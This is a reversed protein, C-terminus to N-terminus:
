RKVSNIQQKAWQSDEKLSDITEEPKLSHASLMRKGSMALMLAILAFAAAVIAFAIWTRMRQDLLEAATFGVFTLAVLGILGGALLYGIGKGMASADDKIEAQALRLEGRVLDQLDKILGSIISGVSENNGSSTYGEGRYSADMRNRGQADSLDM